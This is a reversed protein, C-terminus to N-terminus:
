NNEIPIILLNRVGGNREVGICLIFVKIGRLFQLRGNQRPDIHRVEYDWAYYRAKNHNKYKKHIKFLHDQFNNYIYNMLDAKAAHKIKTWSSIAKLADIKSTLSFLEDIKIISKLPKNKSGM